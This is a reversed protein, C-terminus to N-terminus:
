IFKMQNCMYLLIAYKYQLYSVILILNPLLHM